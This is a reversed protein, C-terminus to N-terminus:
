ARREKCLGDRWRWGHGESLQESMGWTCSHRKAWEVQFARKGKRGQSAGATGDPRQNSSKRWPTGSARMVGYQLGVAARLMCYQLWENEELQGSSWAEWRHATSSATHLLLRLKWTLFVLKQLYLNHTGWWTKLRDPDWNGTQLSLLGSHLNMLCCTFYKCVALCKIPKGPPALPLSGM